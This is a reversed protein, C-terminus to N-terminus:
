QEEVHAAAGPLDMGAGESVAEIVRDMLRTFNYEAMLYEAAVPNFQLLESLKEWEQCAADDPKGGAITEGELKMRLRSQRSLMAATDPDSFACERAARYLVATPSDYIQRGLLRAAEVPDAAM